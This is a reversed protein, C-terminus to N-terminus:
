KTQDVWCNHNPLTSQSYVGSNKYTNSAFVNKLFQKQNEKTYNYYGRKNIIVLYGDKGSDVLSKVVGWTNACKFSIVKGAIKLVGKKLGEKMISSVAEKISKFSLTENVSEEVKVTAKKTKSKTAMAKSKITKTEKQKTEKSVHAPVEKKSKSGSGPTNDSVTFSIKSDSKTKIKEDNVIEAKLEKLVKNDIPEVPATPKEKVVEVGNEFTAVKGPFPATALFHEGDDKCIVYCKKKTKKSESAAKKRASMLDMPEQLQKLANFLNYRVTKNRNLSLVKSLANEFTDAQIKEHKKANVVFSFTPLKDRALRKIATQIKNLPKKKM